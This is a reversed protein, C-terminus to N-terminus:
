KSKIDISKSKTSLLIKKNNKTLLIQNHNVEALKYGYVTAGVRYWKGNIMASKNLIANLTIRFPKRKVIKKTKSATYRKKGRSAGSKKKSKKRLYIFPDHVKTLKKLDLGVRPPKIAEIQQDVWSLENAAMLQTTFLLALIIYLKKM